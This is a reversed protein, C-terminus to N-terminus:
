PEVMLRYFGSGQFNTDVLSNRPPTAPIHQRVVRYDAPNTSLWDCSLLTYFRNSVSQWEVFMGPPFDVADQGTGKAGVAGAFSSGGQTPQIKTFTLFSNANTPDTGALYENLDSVGDNDFDLLGNRSLNLFYQLEWNDPMGDGDSDVIAIAVNLDVREIAGRTAASFNFTGLAPAVLSAAVGNITVTARSYATSAANLPLTAASLTSSGVLSEYPVRLKYSFTNNINQIPVAVAIPTGGGAPTIIWNLTGNTMRANGGATNRVIGYMVLGPEPVSDARAFQPLATVLVLTLICNRM